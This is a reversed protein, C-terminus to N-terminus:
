VLVLNPDVSIDGSPSVIRDLNMSKNLVSNSLNYAPTKNKCHINIINLRKYRNIVQKYIKLLRSEFEEYSFNKISCIGQNPFDVEELATLNCSLIKGGMALKERLDQIVNEQSRQSFVDNSKDQKHKLSKPSNWNPSAFDKAFEDGYCM